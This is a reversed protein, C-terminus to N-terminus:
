ESMFWPHNLADSAIIRREPDYQLMRMMLDYGQDDLLETPIDFHRRL